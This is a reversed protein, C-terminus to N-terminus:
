IEVEIEIPYPGFAKSFIRMDAEAEEKTDFTKLVSTLDSGPTKARFIDQERSINYRFVYFWKTVKKTLLKKRRLRMEEDFAEKFLRSAPLTGEILEKCAELVGRKYDDTSMKLKEQEWLKQVADSWSISSPPGTKCCTGCVVRVSEGDPSRLDALSIEKPFNHNCKSSEM